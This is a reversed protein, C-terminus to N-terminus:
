NKLNVFELFSFDRIPDSQSAIREDIFFYETNESSCDHNKGTVYTLIIRRQGKVKGTILGFTLPYGRLPGVLETAM